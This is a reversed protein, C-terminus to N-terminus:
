ATGRSDRWARVRGHVEVGRDDVDTPLESAVLWAAASEGMAISPQGSAMARFVEDASDAPVMRAFEARPYLALTFRSGEFDVTIVHDDERAREILPGTLVGQTWLADVRRILARQRAAYRPDRPM